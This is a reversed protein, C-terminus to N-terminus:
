RTWVEAIVLGLVLMLCAYFMMIKDHAQEDEKHRHELWAGRVGYVVTMVVTIFTMSDLINLGAIRVDSLVIGSAAIIPVFLAASFLFGFAEFKNRM